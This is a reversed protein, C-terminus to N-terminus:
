SILITLLETPKNILHHPDHPKLKEETHYGYTVAIMKKVNAKKAANLTDINYNIYNPQFYFAGNNRFHTTIRNRESNFDAEDYQKGKKLLTLNENKKYLSDLIPTSIKINITDLFFPTGTNITYKIVVKKIGITDIKYAATVNFYGRNFYYSKLRIM